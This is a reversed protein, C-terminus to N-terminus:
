RNEFLILLDDVEDIGSVDLDGDNDRDHLIACSAATPATLSTPLRSLFGDGLNAHVEFHGSGFHSSVADLDGDGDLDGLDIALPFAGLFHNQDLTLGAEGDGLYVALTGESANVAAFDVHGDGNLDGGALMWPDGGAPIRDRETFTGDGNSVFAAIDLSLRSGIVLDMLGDENLDGTACSWEGDGAEFTGRSGFIGSGDNEFDLLCVGRVKAGAELNQRHVLGGAGDGHFIAVHSGQASGVAFDIDGNGDFDAGENTSPENAEPIPVVTFPGYGGTGDNMFVRLDGSEENPLILDSWGDGDLDGAYAGYTQIREEGPRRVDLTSVHDLTMSTPTVAVWFTWTHGRELEAGDLARVSGTPITATVWEGASLSRSPSFRLARDEDALTVSGALVGSWRGFVRVDDPSVTAADLPRDFEVVLDDSAGVSITNPTPTVSRIQLPTGPGIGDDSSSCALVLPASATLGLVTARVFPFRSM